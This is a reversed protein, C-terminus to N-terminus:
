APVGYQRRYEEIAPVQAALDPRARLTALVDDLTAIAVVPIGFTRSVEQTASLEGQGREQRDLAILVGAPTAGAARIMGESERVSTGASIVDDIVLVRGALPAGVINGGEGHDKAEKRNYSFPVNHGMQALAVATASALTIGKYAPGFLLDFPVKSALAAQAYYKALEGLSTGDHFLGANFFYPSLRGAKTKFAGFRLVGIRIAFEVFQRRFDTVAPAPSDM